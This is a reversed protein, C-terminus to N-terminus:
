PGDYRIAWGLTGTHPERNTGNPSERNRKYFPYVKWKDPGLQIIQEPIYNTLRFYRSHKLEIIQSIKNSPMIKSPSIPILLSNDSWNAVSRAILPTKIEIGAISNSEVKQPSWGLVPDYVYSNYGSNASYVGNLWFPAPCLFSVGGGVESISMSNMYSSSLDISKKCSASCWIKKDEAGFALWLYIDISHRYILYVENEFCHIFYTVPFAAQPLVVAGDSTKANNTSISEPMANVLSNNAGDTGATLIIGRANTALAFLFAGSANKLVNGSRSWGVGTAAQMLAQLLDQDNTAQGSFYAM